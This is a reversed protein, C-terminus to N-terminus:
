IVSPGKSRTNFSLLRVHKPFYAAKIEPISRGFYGQNTLLLFRFNLVKGFNLKIGIHKLVFSFLTLDVM